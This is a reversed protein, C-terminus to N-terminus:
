RDIAPGVTVSQLNRQLRHRIFALPPRLNHFYPSPPPPCPYSPYSHPRPWEKELDSVRSFPPSMNAIAPDSWQLPTVLDTCQLPTPRQLPTLGVLLHQLSSISNSHPPPTLSPFPHAFYRFPVCIRCNGCVIQM